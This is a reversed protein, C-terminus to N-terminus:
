RVGRFVRNPKVKMKEGYNSQQKNGFTSGGVTVKKWVPEAKVAKNEESKKQNNKQKTM